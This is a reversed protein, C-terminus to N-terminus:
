QQPKSAGEGSVSLEVARSGVGDVPDCPEVRSTQSLYSVGPASLLDVNFCVEERNKHSARTSQARRYRLVNSNRFAGRSMAKPTSM